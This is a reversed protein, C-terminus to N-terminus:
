RGPKSGEFCRLIKNGLRRPCYLMITSNIITITWSLDFGDALRRQSTAAPDYPDNKWGRAYPM